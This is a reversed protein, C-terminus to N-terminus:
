DAHPTFTAGGLRGAAARAAEPSAIRAITALADAIWGRRATVTVADGPSLPRASAPDVIHSVADTGEGGTVSVVRYADGSTAVGARADRLTVSRGAGDTARITWAEAGPPPDGLALDGGIEVFASSYGSNKLTDLAVDAALGKGIGGFDLRMGARAFRVRGHAADLELHGMGVRSAADVQEDESPPVGTRAAERWLATVPGITIDFAGDSARWAERSKAIADILMPSADHWAGPERQMLLMAESDVRYDSLARELEDIVGFARRVAAVPETEAYIVIRVRSGM